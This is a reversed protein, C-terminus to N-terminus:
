NVFRGYETNHSGDVLYKNLERKKRQNYTKIGHKDIFQQHIDGEINYGISNFFRYMTEYDEKNVGRLQLFSSEQLPKQQKVKPLEALYKKRKVSYCAICDNYRGDRYTTNRYFNDIPLELNCTRCIKEM